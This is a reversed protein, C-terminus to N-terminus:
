RIPTYEMSSYIINDLLLSDIDVIAFDKLYSIRTKETLLIRNGNMM